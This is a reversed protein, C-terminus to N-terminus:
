GALASSEMAALTVPGPLGDAVLGHAAQWRAIAERGPHERHLRLAIRLADLGQADSRTPLAWGLVVDSQDALWLAAGPQCGWLQRYVAYGTGGPALDPRVHGLEVRHLWDSAQLLWRSRAGRLSVGPAPLAPYVQPAHVTVPSEPGLLARWPMRHYSPVDHSTVGLAVGQLGMACAELLARAHDNLAEGALPCGQTWGSAGARSPGELNLLLCEAGAGAALTGWEQATTAVRARSWGALSNSGPSYWLRVGPLASRIARIVPAHSRDPWAHLVLLDPRLERVTAEAGRWASALGADHWLTVGIGPALTM